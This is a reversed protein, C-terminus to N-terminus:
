RRNNSNTFPLRLMRLATGMHCWLSGASSTSNQGGRYDKLVWMRIPHEPYKSDDETQQGEWQDGDGDDLRPPCSPPPRGGELRRPFTCRLNDRIHPLAGRLQAPRARSGPPGPYRDKPDPDPSRGKIRSKGSTSMSHRKHWETHSTISCSLRPHTYQLSPRSCATTWHRNCLLSGYRGNKTNTRLAPPVGHRDIDLVIDIMSRSKLHAPGKDPGHGLRERASRM